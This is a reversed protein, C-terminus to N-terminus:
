SVSNTKKFKGYFMNKVVKKNKQRNTESVSSLNSQHRKLDLITVNSIQQPFKSSDNFRRLQLTFKEGNFHVNRVNGKLFNFATQLIFKQSSNTANLFSKQINRAIENKNELPSQLKLFLTFKTGQNFKKNLKNTSSKSFKKEITFKKDSLLKNSIANKPRLKKLFNTNKPPNPLSIGSTDESDIIQEIAIKKEVLASSKRYPSNQQKRLKWFSDNKPSELKTEKIGRSKIKVDFKTGNKNFNKIVPGIQKTQNSSDIRSVLDQKDKQIKNCDSTSKPKFINTGKRIKKDKQIFYSHESTFNDLWINTNAIKEDNEENEIEVFNKLFYEDLQAEFDLSREQTVLTCSSQYIDQADFFEDDDAFIRGSGNTM